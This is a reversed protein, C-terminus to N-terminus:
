KIKVFDECSVPKRQKMSEKRQTLFVPSQPREFSSQVVMSRKMDNSRALFNPAGREKREEEEKSRGM